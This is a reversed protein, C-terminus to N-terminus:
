AVFDDSFSSDRFRLGGDFKGCITMGCFMTRIFSVEFSCGVTVEVSLEGTCGDDLKDGDLTVGFNGKGVM